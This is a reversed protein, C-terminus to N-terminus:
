SGNSRLPDVYVFRTMVGIDHRLSQVWGGDNWVAASGQDANLAIELFAPEIVLEHREHFCPDRLDVAAGVTEVHMCFFRPIKALRLHPQM